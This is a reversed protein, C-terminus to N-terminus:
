IMPLSEFIDSKVKKYVKPLTDAAFDQYFFLCTLNARVFCVWEIIVWQLTQSTSWLKITITNIDNIEPPFCKYRM